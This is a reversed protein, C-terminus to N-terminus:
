NYKWKVIYWSTCSNNL